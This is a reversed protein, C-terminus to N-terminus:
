PIAEPQPDRGPFNRYDSTSTQLVVAQHLSEVDIVKLVVPRELNVMLGSVQEFVWSQAKFIDGLHPGTVRQEVWGRWGCMSEHDGVDRASTSITGNAGEVIPSGRRHRGM